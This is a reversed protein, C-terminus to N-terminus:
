QTEIFNALRTMADECTKEDPVLSVRVYGIGPDGAPAPRSLYRGPLTILAERAYLDHAFREDDGSPVKLWLYFAGPPIRVDMVPELIRRATAFKAQYRHRNETVHATDEWM